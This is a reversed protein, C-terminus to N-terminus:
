SREGAVSPVRGVARARAFARRAEARTIGRVAMLASLDEDGLALALEIRAFPDLARVREHTARRLDDAVSPMGSLM